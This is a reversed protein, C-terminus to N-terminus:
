FMPSGIIVPMFRGVKQDPMFDHAKVVRSGVIYADFQLGPVSPKFGVSPCQEM